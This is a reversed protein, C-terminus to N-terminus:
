VSKAFGARWIRPSSWRLVRIEAWRRVAGALVPVTHALGTLEALVGDDAHPPDQTVIV